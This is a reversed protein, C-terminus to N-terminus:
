KKRPEARLVEDFTLGTLQTIGKMLRWMAVMMMAMSPIVIVPWSLWHM